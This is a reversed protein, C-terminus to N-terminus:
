QENHNEANKYTEENLKNDIHIQILAELLETKQVDEGCLVKKAVDIWYEDEESFSGYPYSPLKSILKTLQSPM